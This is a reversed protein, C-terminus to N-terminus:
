NASQQKDKLNAEVFNAWKKLFQSTRVIKRRLEATPVLVFFGTKKYQHHQTSSASGSSYLV